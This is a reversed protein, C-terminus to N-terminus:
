AAEARAKLGDCFGQFAENMDPLSGAILPLMPGSFVEHLRFEVQGDPRPALNFTRVGKFLGLPMGGQWTMRRAPDMEVVKVPFARGPSLHSFVKIKNGLAIEGEVRECSPDFEPYAAGDVLIEWVREPTAAITTSAEFEKM